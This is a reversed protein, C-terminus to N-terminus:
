PRATPSCRKSSREIRRRRPHSARARAAAPRGLEDESVALVEDAAHGAFWAGIADNSFRETLLVNGLWPDVGTPPVFETTALEDMRDDPVLRVSPMAVAGATPEDPRCRRPCRRASRPMPRVAPSCRTAAGGALGPTCAPPQRRESSPTPPPWRQAGTRNRSPSLLRRRRRRCPTARRGHRRDHDGEGPELPAIVARYVDGDRSSSAGARRAGAASTACRIRSSSGPSSSRSASRDGADRRHRHRRPRAHGEDLTTNPIPTSSSTATSAPSRATGIASASGRRSRRGARRRRRRTGDGIGRDRGGARRLRQPDVARLRPPPPQRLGRRRGRPRAAGDYGVPSVVVQKSDFREAHDEGIIGLGAALTTAGITGGVVLHRWSGLKGLPTM